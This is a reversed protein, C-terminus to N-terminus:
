SVVCCGGSEGRSSEALPRWRERDYEQGERMVVLPRGATAVGHVRILHFSELKHGGAYVDGVDQWGTAHLIKARLMRVNQEEAGNITETFSSRDSLLVEVCSAERRRVTEAWRFGPANIEVRGWLERGGEGECVVDVTYQDFFNPPQNALADLRAQAAPTAERVEDPYPKNTLVFDERLSGIATAFDHFVSVDYTGDAHVRKVRALGTIWQGAKTVSVAQGVKLPFAAAEDRVVSAIIVPTGQAIPVEDAIEGYYQVARKSSNARRLARNNPLVGDSM